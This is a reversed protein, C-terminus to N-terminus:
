STCSHISVTVPSGFAIEYGSGAASASLASVTVPTYQPQYLSVFTRYTARWVGKGVATSSIWQSSNSLGPPAANPAAISLEHALMSSTVLVTVDMAVSVNPPSYYSTGAERCDYPRPFSVSSFTVPGTVSVPTAPAPAAHGTGATDPFGAETYGRPAPHASAQYVPGTPLAPARTLRAPSTPSPSPSMPISTSVGPLPATSPGSGSSSCAALAGTLAAAAVAANVAKQVNM